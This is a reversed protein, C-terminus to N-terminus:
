IDDKPVHRPHAELVCPAAVHTAIRLCSTIRLPKLPAGFNAENEANPMCRDKSACTRPTFRKLGKPGQGWQGSGLTRCLVRM